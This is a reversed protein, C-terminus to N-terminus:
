VGLDGKRLVEYDYKLKELELSKSLDNKHLREREDQLYKIKNQLFHREEIWTERDQNVKKINEQILKDRNSRRFILADLNEKIESMNFNLAAFDQPGPLKYDIFERALNRRHQNVLGSISTGRPLKEIISDEIEIDTDYETSPTTGGAGRYFSTATTSTSRNIFASIASDKRKTIHHNGLLPNQTALSSRRLLKQLTESDLSSWHGSNKREKSKKLSSPTQKQTALFWNKLFFDLNKYSSIIIDKGFDM